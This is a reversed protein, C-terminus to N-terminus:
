SGSLEKSRNEAALIGEKIAKDMHQENFIKIAAETTGGKSAVAKILDDLSLEANNILHYAGLMTQKVLLLATGEDFGMMKGTEVMHKVFYYFYAPGSGSLATVADLQYEDEIYISRGTANILNEVKFLKAIGIGEAATFGTIGMGMMAPTNPMARIVFQHGTLQQIKKIKIGAMISLVIQNEALKGKLDHALVDFDQPKVALIILDYTSINQNITNVVIGEKTKTLMKCREENKEILLLNEKKVLEYQLFSRAFALGMNGCGLIAIKM